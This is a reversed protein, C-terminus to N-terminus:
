PEEKELEGEEWARLLALQEPTHFWHEADKAVTLFAQHRSAYTQVTTLPTLSDKEGYLICTQGQWDRIHHRRVYCLYQWSFTQGFDTPIEGAQRLQEETVGAWGMMTLILAEMDLIPSVFLARRPAPWALLAFYAGISNARVSFDQWRQSAWAAVAQLDPVAAWPTLTEGKSRRAGHDPLDLSLVQYGKPCVLEAFPLAEEKYGMQGHVFLWVKSATEGYLVVPIRQILFYETKM